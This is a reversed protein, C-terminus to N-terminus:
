FKIDLYDDRLIDNVIRVDCRIPTFAQAYQQMLRIDIFGCLITSRVHGGTPIEKLPLM